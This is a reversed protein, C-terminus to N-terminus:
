VLLRNASKSKPQSKLASKHRLQPLPSLRTESVSKKMPHVGVESANGSFLTSVSPQRPPPRVCCLLEELRRRLEALVRRKMVFICFIVLGQCANAMDTLYWMETPLFSSRIFVASVFELGWNIGMAVFLKCNMVFRSRDSKFKNDAIPTHGVKDLDSKVKACHRATLIFFILNVTLLIGIPATFFLFLGNSVNKFWCSEAGIGPRLNAPLIDVHDAIGALVVIITPNIWAYASYLLFRRLERRKRNVMPRM